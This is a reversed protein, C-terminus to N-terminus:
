SAGKPRPNFPRVYARQVTRAKQVPEPARPPVLSSSAEPPEGTGPAQAGAESAEELARQRVWESLKLGAESARAEMSAKEVESVRVQIVMARTM